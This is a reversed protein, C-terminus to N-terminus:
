KWSRLTRRLPNERKRTPLMTRNASSDSSSPGCALVTTAAWRRPSGRQPLDADPDVPGPDLAPVIMPLEKWRKTSTSRTPASDVTSAGTADHRRDWEVCRDLDLRSEHARVRILARRDHALEAAANTM